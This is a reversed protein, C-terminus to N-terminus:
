CHRFCWRWCGTLKVNPFCRTLEPRASRRDSHCQEPIRRQDREKIKRVLEDYLHKDADAERKLAQYKSRGCTSPSRVEHKPTRGRAQKSWPERRESERFESKWEGRSRRVLRISGADVESVRALAKRISPHNTGPLSNKIRGFHRRRSTVINWWSRLLSVRLTALAAEIAGGRVSEWAAEKKLRQAEANTYETNLSCCGGVPINTKEEPNILNLEREFGM